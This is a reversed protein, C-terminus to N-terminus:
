KNSKQNLQAQLDEIVHKLRGIEMDKDVLLSDYEWKLEIAMSLKTREEWTPESKKLISALEEFRERAYSDEPFDCEHEMLSDYAWEREAETPEYINCDSPLPDSVWYRNEEKFVNVMFYCFDDEEILAIGKRGDFEVAVVDCPKLDKVNVRKRGEFENM